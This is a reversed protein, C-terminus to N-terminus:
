RTICRKIQKITTQFFPLCFPLDISQHRINPPNSEDGYNTKSRPPFSFRFESYIRHLYQFTLLNPSLYNWLSWSHLLLLLLSSFVPSSSSSSSLSEQPLSSSSIYNGGKQCLNSWLDSDATKWSSFIMNQNLINWETKELRPVRPNTKASLTFSVPTGHSQRSLGLFKPAKLTHLRVPSWITRQESPVM